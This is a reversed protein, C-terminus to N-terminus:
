RWTPRSCGRGADTKGFTKDMIKDPQDPNLNVWFKDPTLALWTFMADSALQLKAKGGWGPNNDPDKAYDAKFSYDLGRGKVPNGIYQLELTSFDIGGPGGRGFVGNGNYRAYDHQIQRANGPTSGSRFAADSIPGVSGVRRPDPNMIPNYRTYQNPKWRPAGTSRHERITAQPRGPTGREKELQENLKAYQEVTGKKTETGTILRLKHDRYDPMRMVHQDHRLQKAIHSGPSKFEVLEKTKANYADYKRVAQKPRGQSDKGDMVPKGNKDFVPM